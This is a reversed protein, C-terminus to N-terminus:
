QVPGAGQAREGHDRWAAALAVAVCAFAFADGIRNYLTLGHRPRVEGVIVSRELPASRVRVRGWPDVVASPGSTSARVLTRRQEVARLSVVDFQMESYQADALWSDNSPNVLWTAGAAVRASVVEPLMAENCVAVGVPGAITDLPPGPAGRTFERARGFQRRLFDVRLPFYETFPVLYEKDYRGRIEGDPGFVFTSNFYIADHGRGETRPAGALLEVGEPLVAGLARRYLPEDAVFFTMAAEPWVVLAPRHREIAARTLELYVELNAGYLEAKWRSGVDLNGQVVAIRSPPGPDDARALAVAGFAIALAGPALGLALRGLARAPADALGARARWLEAWAANSSAVAFSVGYIGFLSAVQTVPGLGAQSYGVLGWPNGIFFPTDTFLRGRGLEATVWAAAGLWPLLPHAPMRRWAFAFVLYYPAVMTAAVFLFFAIGVALPQEFYTAIAPPLWTGTAYAAAFSWLLTLGLARRPTAGRVVAFLPALAVWALPRLAFPPFSATFLAVSLLVAGVECAPGRPDSRGVDRLLDAPRENM